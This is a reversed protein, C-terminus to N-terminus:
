EGLFGQESMQSWKLCMKKYNDKIFECIIRLEKDKLAVQGRVIVIEIEVDDMNTELIEGNSRMVTAHNPSKLGVIRTNDDNMRSFAYGFVIMATSEAIADIEYNNMM